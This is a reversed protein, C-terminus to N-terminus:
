EAGLGWPRSQRVRAHSEQHLGRPRGDGMVLIPAARGAGCPAWLLCILASEIEDMIDDSLRHFEEDERLRRDLVEEFLANITAPAL